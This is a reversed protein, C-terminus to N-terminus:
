VTSSNGEQFLDDGEFPNPVEDMADLKASLEKLQKAVAELGKRYADIKRKLFTSMLHEFKDKMDQEIGHLLKADYQSQIEEVKQQYEAEYGKKIATLVETFEKLWKGRVETLVENGIKQVIKKELSFRERCRPCAVRLRQKLHHTAHGDQIEGIANDLIKNFDIAEGEENM